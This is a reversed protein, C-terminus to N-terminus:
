EVVWEKLDPYDCHPVPEQGPNLTQLTNIDRQWDSPDFGEKQDYEVMHKNEKILADRLETWRKIATEKTKCIHKITYWEFRSEAVIWVKTKPIVVYNFGCEPNDCYWGGGNDGHMIGGCGQTCPQDGM